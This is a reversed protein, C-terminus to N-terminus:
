ILTTTTTTTNCSLSELLIVKDGYTLSGDVICETYISVLDTVTGGVLLSTYCDVGSWNTDGPEVSPGSAILKYISCTESSSTTTTTTTPPITTTTTTTTSSSTSTTTTTAGCCQELTNYINIIDGNINIVQNTINTIQINLYNIQSVLNCIIEDIKQLVVNLTNCPEAVICSLAPGNYVVNSSLLTNTGCMNQGCNTSPTSSCGCPTPIIVDTCCPNVPLYSM